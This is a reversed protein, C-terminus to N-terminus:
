QDKLKIVAKLEHNIGKMTIYCQESQVKKLQNFHDITWRIKCYKCEFEMKEGVLFLERRSRM